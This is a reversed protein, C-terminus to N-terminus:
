YSRYKTDTIRKKNLSGVSEFTQDDAFIFVINPKEKKLPNPM